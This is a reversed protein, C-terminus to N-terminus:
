DIKRRQFWTDSLMFGVNLLVFRERMQGSNLDGRQGLELGINITSTTKKLPLGIGASLANEVVSKGNVTYALKENRLGLRYYTHEFFGPGPKGAPYYQVGMSLKTNQGLVPQPMAWTFNKYDIVRYDLGFVWRLKYQVNFGFGFSNPLILNEKQDSSYAITDLVEKFQGRVIFRRDLTTSLANANRTIGYWGGIVATWDKKLPFSYQMGLKFEASKVNFEKRFDNGLIQSTDAGLFNNILTHSYGGFLYAAELGISVVHKSSDDFWKIPSLANAWYVKSMSGSLRQNTELWQNGLATTDTADYGSAAYPLLGLSTGWGKALPFGMCLSGFSARKTILERNNFSQNLYKGQLGANFVTLSLASHSAPNEPNLIIPSRFGSSIGGMSFLPALNRSEIEGFGYRSYVSNTLNQATAGEAWLLFLFFYLFLRFYKM